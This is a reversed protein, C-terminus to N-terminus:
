LKASLPKIHTSDVVPFPCKAGMLEAVRLGSTLGDEHFGFNTWAGAFWLKNKGQIQPLEKQSQITNLTYAPHEYNYEAIITEKKVPILPNMTVFIDKKTGIFPQLRNMWYTLCVDSRGSASTTSLYNWSSWVNRRVPMFRKDTHVIAKNPTYVIRQLVEKEKPTPDEILRLSQDGHCALVVHDYLEENGNVDKLLVKGDETRRVSVVGCNLRIDKVREQVKKIYEISGNTVTLWTPRNFIQLLSHNHCFRILTVIPFNLMESVPTSWIAGTMPLLYAKKFTESYGHLTLYEGLTMKSEEKLLIETSEKNFRLIEWIMRLFSPSFLNKKQAFVTSLNDGAWELGGQDM